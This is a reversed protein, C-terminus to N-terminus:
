KLILPLYLFPFDVTQREVAGVDCTSNVPRPKGRQDTTPCSINTGNDIAPGGYPMHTQTTGGYSGLPALMVAVNDQGGGLGGFGCTNDSSLNHSGGLAPSCNVGQSNVVITNTLTATGFYNYIGGGLTTASNGSLTINILTAAAGFDYNYIGGGNSASNGSLTVNTLTLTGNNLIGGGNTASNSSLTVNTLTTTAGSYNYIGGGSGSAINGSFTVNTLTATADNYIGAGTSATNGSLTVNTLAVTGSNYIGGGNGSPTNSSLESDNLSLSTGSNVRVGGGGGSSVSGGRIALGQITVTGIVVHFIRDPSALGQTVTPTLAGTASILISSRIDLDGTADLDEGTALFNEQTLTYTGSPLFVRSPGGGGVIELVCGGFDPGDNMTKIAERLSCGTGSGSTDYEDLTTTVAVEFHFVITPASAAPVPVQEALLLLTIALATATGFLFRIIRANM